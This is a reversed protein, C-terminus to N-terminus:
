NDFRIDCCLLDQKQRVGFIKLDFNNCDVLKGQKDFIEIGTSVSNFITSFKTATEKLIRAHEVWDTKDQNILLYSDIAGREDRIITTKINLHMKKNVMPNYYDRAIGFDYDLTFEMDDGRKIRNKIDQSINPNDF